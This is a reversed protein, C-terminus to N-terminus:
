EYRKKKQTHEMISVIGTSDKVFKVQSSEKSSLKGSFNWVKDRGGNGPSFYRIRSKQLSDTSALDMDSLNVQSYVPSMGLLSLLASIIFCKKM